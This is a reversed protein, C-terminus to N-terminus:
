ILQVLIVNFQTSTNFAGESYTYIFKIHINPQVHCNFICVSFFNPFGCRVILFM